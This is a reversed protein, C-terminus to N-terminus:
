SNRIYTIYSNLMKSLVEYENLLIESKEKSIYNLDRALLIFYETESLSGKSLYLFQEFEKKSKRNYGEVINAAVSSSSRQIQSIVGYKETSPFTRCIKYIELTLRHAEQWIKLETFRM